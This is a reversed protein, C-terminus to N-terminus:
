NKSGQEMVKVFMKEFVRPVAALITPHLELLAQAVMEVAEVYAVTIGNFIEVYDLMRGYVHALPLFSLSMDEGPRFEVGDNSDVVNSCFNAHTLMVGKPEGTTGSTYIISALQGPLVQPVSIRYSSVDVSGASAILTEDRLCETPVGAGADAVIIQELEPTQ